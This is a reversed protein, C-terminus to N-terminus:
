DEWECQPGPNSKAQLLFSYPGQRKVGPSPAGPYGSSRLSPPGWLRDPRYPATFMRSGVPVRAGFRRNDMGHGTAIGVSSGYGTNCLLKENKGVSTVNMSNEFPKLKSIFPIFSFSNSVLRFLHLIYRVTNCTLRYISQAWSLTSVNDLRQFM